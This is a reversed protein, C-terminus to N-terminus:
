DIDPRTGDQRRKRVIRLPLASSRQDPACAPVGMLENRVNPGIDWPDQKSLQSFYTISILNSKTESPIVFLSQNLAKTNQNQSRSKLSPPPYTQSDPTRYSANLLYTAIAPLVEWTFSGETVAPVAPHEQSYYFPLVIGKLPEQARTRPAAVMLILLLSSVITGKRLIPIYFNVIYLTIINLIFYGGDPQV